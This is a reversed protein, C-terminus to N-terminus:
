RLLDADPIESKGTIVRAKHVLGGGRVYRLTFEPVNVMIYEAGLDAPLWRWREMNAVIDGENEASRPAAWHRSPARTSTAM